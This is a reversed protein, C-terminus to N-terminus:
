IMLPRFNKFLIYMYNVLNWISTRCILNIIWFHLIWRASIAKSLELSIQLLVNTAPIIAVENLLNFLYLSSKIPTIVSGSYKSLFWIWVLFQSITYINKVKQKCSLGLYIPQLDKQFKLKVNLETQRDTQKGTQSEVRLVTM